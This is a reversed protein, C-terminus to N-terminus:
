IPIAERRNHSDRDTPTDDDPAVSGLNTGRCATKRERATQELSSPPLTFECEADATRALRRDLTVLPVELREAIRLASTVEVRM